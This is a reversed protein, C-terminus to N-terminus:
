TESAACYGIANLVVDDASMGAGRQRADGHRGAADILARARDRYGLGDELGVAVVHADLHGLLMAADATRGMSALALTTSEMVQWLKQWYRIEYLADLAERCRGLADPAGLGTAALAIARLAQTEFQIDTSDRAVELAREYHGRATAFDPRRVSRDVMAHGDSLACYTVLSPAPVRTAIEHLERRLPEVEASHVNMAADVLDVLDEFHHDLNVIRAVARRQHDFAERVEASGPPSLPGAGAIMSWCLATSPHDPDPAVAIGRQGWKFSQEECGDVNLWFAHCGMMETSPKGLREGLEVTRLTWSGHEARMRSEADRFTSRVISEAAEIDDIALSWLHAARLNDWEADLAQSGEDQRASRALLGLEVAVGAYYRAHRERFMTTEGRGDLQEEAFQRLTELLRYRTAAGTREVVVMSKDVLQDVLDLVDLEAVPEVGCVWEAAALDFGGAFVSIRDFLRREDPTLLQYSWSVTARLTQHRELAGRGSGRLVRFRDQLRDLLEEPTLSRLRAAALEIALPIGDLRRCIQELAAEHGAPDFLSDADRARECLLTVADGAADLSPVRVVHEGRVGLAERSTAVTVVQACRARVATVAEAVEALVHECNDIVLLLRRDGIWDLVSQLMSAEGAALVPLADALAASVAGEDTVPALDIFYAGDPFEDLSRWALELASRTKGVGGTGALTIVGGRGVLEGLETLLADGGVYDTVPRPLNTHSDLVGRPEPFSRQLLPHEVQYLAITGVDRLRHVGLSQLTTREPLVRAHDRVADSAVIQGGHATAVIRAAHHISLGVLDDDFEAVEGLHLGMRVRVRLGGPWDATELETQARVAAALAASPSAFTVFFSDGDTGHEVGEWGAIAARIIRRHRQLLEPWREGARELLATSGEVDTFLLTRVTSPVSADYSRCPRRSAPVTGGFELGARCGVFSQWCCGQAPWRCM